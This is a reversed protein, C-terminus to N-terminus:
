TVGRDVFKPKSHWTVMGFCNLYAFEILVSARLVWFKQFQCLDVLIVCESVSAFSLIALIAYYRIGWFRVLFYPDVHFVVDFVVTSM